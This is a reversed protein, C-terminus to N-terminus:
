DVPEKVFRHRIYRPQHIRFVHGRDGVAVDEDCDERRVIYSMGSEGQIQLIGEPSIRIVNGRELPTHNENM